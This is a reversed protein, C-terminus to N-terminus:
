SVAITRPAGPERSEDKPAEFYVKEIKLNKEGFFRKAEALAARMADGGGNPGAVSEYTYVIEARITVDFSQMM